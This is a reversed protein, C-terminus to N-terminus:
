ECAMHSSGHTIRTATTTDKGIQRASDFDKQKNREVRATYAEKQKLNSCVKNTNRGLLSTFRAMIRRNLILMAIQMLPVKM